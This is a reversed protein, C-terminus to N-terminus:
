GYGHISRVIRDARGDGSSIHVESAYESGDPLYTFANAQLRGDPGLKVLLLVLFQAEKMQPSAVIERMTERDPDSPRLSFLPHSHWEGMYNFQRHRNGTRERFRALGALAKGVNRVFTAFTGRSHITLDRIAFANTGIHEGMLIGGIERHGAKKLAASVQEALDPPLDLKLM